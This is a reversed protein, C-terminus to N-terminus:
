RKIYYETFKQPVNGIIRRAQLLTKARDPNYNADAPNLSEIKVEGTAHIIEGKDIHIAVHTIKQKGNEIRGFFLLDGPAFNHFDPSIQLPKGIKVQQSADRPLVYGLQAYVTKTFGSCDLGKSSTGGWLYPIGLYKLAYNVVDYGTAYQKVTGTFEDLSIYNKDSIYGTRGDPYQVQAFGKEESLLAFVDNIVFDSVPLSTSNAESHVSGVLSTCIIKAQTIWRTYEKLDMIKIGAEDVWAYYGEPTKVRYFGDQEDLIELPMGMLTQTVLEASHKPEARLNAVSLRTIARLKRFKEVPLLRISDEMQINKQKLKEILTKKLSLNDTQGLLIYRDKEQRVNVEFVADRKDPLLEKQVQSVLSAVDIGGSVEKQPQVSSCGTLLIILFLSLIKNM